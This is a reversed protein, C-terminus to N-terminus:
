PKHFLVQAPIPQKEIGPGEYSVVLGFTGTGQQYSVELEYMGARLPLQASKEQQSHPGDNDIAHRGNIFLNSGDDSDAYFTYLGDRPIQIYGQFQFAINTDRKRKKINIPETIIGDEVPKLTSFDPVKRWSESDDEYYRYRIGKALQSVEVPKLATRFEASFVFSELMGDKFAKARIDADKRIEIPKSYRPSRSTPESGDLTYRIVAGKTTTSMTVVQVPRHDTMIGSSPEISVREVAPLVEGLRFAYAESALSSPDFGRPMEITLGGDGQKWELPRDYGLLYIASGKEVLARKLTLSQGPWGKSIAYLTNGKSTYRIADGDSAYRWPRTGYIAEGNRELWRGVELLREQMIVPIRGDATPGIDLLLNGGHSVVDILIDIIQKANKYDDIDENRNYGFSAGIGQCEEWDYGGRFLEEASGPDYETTFFGGHRHRAGAGWRDNVAVDDKCPSENFLWALFEQSKWLEPAHDWEGDPWVLSPSYRTVLDKMQPIMHEEVYQEPNSLYLPNFWEYLSYYFGMKLGRARVATTLEGCLDRHPMCDVSNWNWSEKSPWLCFGEHHKSTLVVYKAGARAFIDAWQDPDFLQATFDNVFDQYKFDEGYKDLHFKWTEGKPDQMHQWYWESYRGKPSWSPVAYVGWHIFIGFKADRYWEPNPRKDLSEWDAEYRQAQAVALTGLLVCCVLTFVVTRKM